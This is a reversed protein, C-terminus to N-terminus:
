ETTARREAHKLRETLNDTLQQHQEMEDVIEDLLNSLRENERQLRDVVEGYADFIVGTETTRNERSKARLAFWGTIVAASVAGITPLIIALESSLAVTEYGM